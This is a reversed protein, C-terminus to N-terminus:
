VLSADRAQHVLTKGWSGTAKQDASPEANQSAGASLKGKRHPQSLLLMVGWPVVLGLGLCLWPNLVPPPSLRDLNFSITMASAWVTFLNPLTDGFRFVRLGGVRRKALPYLLSSGMHGLQDQLIHARVWAHALGGLPGLLPAIAGRLLAAALLSHSWCRHWPLFTILVVSQQRSSELTVGGLADM